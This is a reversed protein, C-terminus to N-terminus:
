PDEPQGHTPPTHVPSRRRQPPIPQPPIPPLRIQTRSRPSDDKKKKKNSKSKNPNRTPHIKHFINPKLLPLSIHPNSLHTTHISRPSSLRFDGSFLFFISFVLMHIYPSYRLDLYNVRTSVTLMGKLKNTIVVKNGRRRRAWTISRCTGWTM